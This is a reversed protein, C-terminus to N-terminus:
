RELNKHNAPRTLSSSVSEVSLIHRSLGDLGVGRLINKLPQSALISSQM